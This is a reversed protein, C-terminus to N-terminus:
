GAVAPARPSVTAAARGAARVTVGSPRPSGARVIPAGPLSEFIGGAAVALPTRVMVPTAVDIVAKM